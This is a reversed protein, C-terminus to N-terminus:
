NASVLSSELPHHQDPSGGPMLIPFILRLIPQVMESAPRRNPTYFWQKVAGFIAWAATTAVIEPTLGEPVPKTEVGKLLTRRIAAVIGAEMLPEFASNKNCDAHAHSTTLYDCTALIIVSAASPCTGDFIINREILLKHFGGGVMADLLSFKDTYHDYFTARNVDALDTIDQVSIEEFSKQQMLNGLAAQLAHRTKRIRPDRVECDSIPM